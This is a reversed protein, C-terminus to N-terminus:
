MGRKNLENILSTYFKYNEKAFWSQNDVYADNLEKLNGIIRNCGKIQWSQLSTTERHFQDDLLDIQMAIAKKMNDVNDLYTQPDQYRVFHNKYFDLDFTYEKAPRKFSEYDDVLEEVETEWIDLDNSNFGPNNNICSEFLEVGRRELEAYRTHADFMDKTFVASKLQVITAENVASLPLATTVTVQKSEDTEKNLLSKLKNYVALIKSKIFEYVKKIANWVVKLVKKVAEIFNSIFGEEVPEYVTLFLSM